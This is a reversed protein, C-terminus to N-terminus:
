QKWIAISILHSFAHAIDQVLCPATPSPICIISSSKTNFIELEIEILEILVNVIASLVFYLSAHVCKETCLITPNFSTGLTTKNTQFAWHLGSHLFFGSIGFTRASQTWFPLFRVALCMLYRVIDCQKEYRVVNSTSSGFNKLTSPVYREILIALKSHRSAAEQLAIAYTYLLFAESRFFFLQHFPLCFPFSLELIESIREFVKPKVLYKENSAKSHPNNM